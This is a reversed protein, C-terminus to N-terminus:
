GERSSHRFAMDSVSFTVGNQTVHPQLRSSPREAVEAKQGHSEWDDRFALPVPKFGAQSKTTGGTKATYLETLRDSSSKGAARAHFGQTGLGVAGKINDSGKPALSGTPQNAPMKDRSVPVPIKWVM